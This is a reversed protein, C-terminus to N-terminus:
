GRGLLIQWYGSNADVKTMFVCEDGIKAMTEEVPELYHLERQVGPNLKTLDICLRIDGNPKTVIVIPHCWDTPKDIKRIVGLKEMKKLEAVVKKLQPIPIHRPSYTQHPITGEKVKISIPGGVEIKGLRNYLKPFEKLLPYDDPTVVENNQDEDIARMEADEAEQAM